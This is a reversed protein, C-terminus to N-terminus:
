LWARLKEIARKQIRSVSMQSVGLKDAIMRQSHGEQYILHIVTQEEEKLSKMAEGIDLKMDLARFEDSPNAILDGISAGDGESTLPTDLSTYHYYDRGALIEITEEQTLELHDAIEEVKPSRELKVTLEDIAHQLMSGKEKVRRPVQIYWSRDRLYNKLNGIVSKMAYGEFPIGISPDYQKFLRLLSMQGVQYLDEYLDPRSRSMKSAAMRVIDEYHVLLATAAENCGEDRYTQMFAAIESPAKSSPKTSM